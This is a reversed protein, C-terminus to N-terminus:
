ASHPRRRNCFELWEGIMQEGQFGDEPDALYVSEYKLSRWLPEIFLNDMWRGRGDMSVQVGAELLRWTFTGSTFQSDQDTNFIEPKGYCGSPSELTHVCFASDLTNSLQWALM